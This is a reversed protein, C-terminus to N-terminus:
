EKIKQILYNRFRSRLCENNSQFSRRKLSKLDFYGNLVKGGQVVRFQKIGKSQIVGYLNHNSWYNPRELMELCFPYVKKTNGEYGYLALGGQFDDNLSFVHENNYNSNLFYPAHIFVYSDGMDEKNLLHVYEKLKDERQDWSRISNITQMQMSAFWLVAIIFSFIYFRTKLIFLCFSAILISYCVHAPLMMKNYLGFSVAPYNSLVFILSCSSLTFLMSYILRRNLNFELQSKLIYIFPVVLISLWLLPESYFFPIVELLLLPIEVLIVLYYYLSQLISNLSPSFGYIDPESQYIPGILFKYVFYIVFVLISWRLLRSNFVDKWNGKYNYVIPFIFLPFIVECSFMSLVGFIFFFVYKKRTFGGDADKLFSIALLYFLLSLLYGMQFFNFLHATSFIPFSIFFLFLWISSGNFYSHFVKRAQFVIAFWLSIRVINYFVHHDKFLHLTSTQILGYIPRSLHGPRSLSYGLDNWLDPASHGVLSMDDSVGFGLLFLLPGFVISILVVWWIIAKHFVM